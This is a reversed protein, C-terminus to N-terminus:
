EKHPDGLDGPSLGGAVQPRELDGSAPAAQRAGHSDRQDAGDQLGAEGGVLRGDGAPVAPGVEARGEHM